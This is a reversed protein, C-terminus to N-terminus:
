ICKRDGYIWIVKKNLVPKKRTIINEFLIATCLCRSMQIPQKQLTKRLGEKSINQFVSELDTRQGKFKILTYDGIETIVKDKHCYHYADEVDKCVEAYGKLNFNRWWRLLTTKFIKNTFFFCCQYHIKKTKGSIEFGGMGYILSTEQKLFELLNSFQYKFNDIEEHQPKQITCMWNKAQANKNSKKEKKKKKMKKKKRKRKNMKM